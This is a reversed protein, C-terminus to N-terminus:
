QCAFLEEFRCQSNEGSLIRERVNAATLVDCHLVGAIEQDTGGTKALAAAQIRNTEFADFICGLRNECEKCLSNVM